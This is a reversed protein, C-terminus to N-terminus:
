REAHSYMKTFRYKNKQAVLSFDFNAALGKHAMLFDDVALTNGMMIRPTNYLVDIKIKTGNLLNNSKRSIDKNDTNLKPKGM